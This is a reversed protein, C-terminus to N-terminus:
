YIKVGVKKLRRTPNGPITRSALNSVLPNPHYPLRSHFSKYFTVAEAHVIKINLDTHLTCNSVYLPTNTILRLIKNQVTQIKNVNTEKANGWLQLGYTWM